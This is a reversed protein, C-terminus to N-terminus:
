LENIFYRYTALVDEAKIDVSSYVVKTLCQAVISREKESVLAKPAPALQKNEYQAKRIASCASCYKRPYGPKMDYEESKGCEACVVTQKNEM